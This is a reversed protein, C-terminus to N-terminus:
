FPKTIMLLVILATAINEWRHAWLNVPERDEDRLAQTIEGKAKAEELIADYRRGRPVFVFAILFFISLVLLNAVLLWNQSAGQLFGLLPYGELVALLIGSLGLASSFPRVLGTDFRGALGLLGMFTNFDTTVQMQRRTIERGVIGAVMGLTSFVHVVVILLTFSM